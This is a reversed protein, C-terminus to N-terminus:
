GGSRAAYTLRPEVGGCSNGKVSTRAAPAYLRATGLSGESADRSTAHFRLFHGSVTPGAGRQM